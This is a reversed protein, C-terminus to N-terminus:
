DAMEKGKNAIAKRIVEVSKTPRFEVIKKAIETAKAESGRIRKARTVGTRRRDGTLRRRCPASRQPLLV